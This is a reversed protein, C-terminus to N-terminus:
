NDQRRLGSWYFGAGADAGDHEEVAEAPPPPPPQLPGTTSTFSFFGPQHFFFEPINGPTNKIAQEQQEEIYLIESTNIQPVLHKKRRFYWLNFM